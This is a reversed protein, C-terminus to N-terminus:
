IAGSVVSFFLIILGSIQFIKKRNPIFRFKLKKSKKKEVKTVADQLEDKNIKIKKAM